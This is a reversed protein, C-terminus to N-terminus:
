DETVGQCCFEDLKRKKIMAPSICLITATSHCSGPTSQGSNCSFTVDLVGSPSCPIPSSSSSRCKRKMGLCFSFSNEMSTEPAILAICREFAEKNVNLVGLLDNENQNAERIVYVMIAAAVVSPLFGLFRKDKLTAILLDNCRMTFIWNHPTEFGLMRTAIEIFSLITVSTMRWQLSSLVLLEMRQITCSEFIYKAEEVQLDLLLPVETEEVKAALSLCTVAALQTMWPKDDQLQNTSLFRDLYNISLVATALNFGYHAHV